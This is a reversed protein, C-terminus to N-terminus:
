NDKKPIKRKTINKDIEFNQTGGWCFLIKHLINFRQVPLFPPTSPLTYLSRSMLRARMLRSHCGTLFRLEEGCALPLSANFVKIGSKYICSFFMRSQYESIFDLWYCASENECGWQNSNPRARERVCPKLFLIPCMALIFIFQMSVGNCNVLM